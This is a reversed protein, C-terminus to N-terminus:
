DSVRATVGTGGEDAVRPPEASKQTQVPPQPACLANTLITKIQDNSLNEPNSVFSELIAGREILRRTRAKREQQKQQQILQKRQNELQQIKTKISEIRETTTIAM